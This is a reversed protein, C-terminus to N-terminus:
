VVSKRELNTESLAECHRRLIMAEGALDEGRIIEAGALRHREPLIARYDERMLVEDSEQEAGSRILTLAIDIRGEDLLHGLERESGDLIELKQGNGSGQAITVIRELLMAPFSTLVGVRLLSEPKVGAVAQAALNYDQMIQRAHPLFRSGSDTLLDSSCVDSSWDSIRM